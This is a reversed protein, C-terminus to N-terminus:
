CVLRSWPASRPSPATLTWRRRSATRHGCHRPTCVGRRVERSCTQQEDGATARGRRCLAVSANQRADGDVVRHQGLQGNTPPRPHQRRRRWGDGRARGAHKLAGGRPRARTTLGQPQTAHAAPAHHVLGEEFVEASTGEVVAVVPAAQEGRDTVPVPEVAGWLSAGAARDPRVPQLMARAVDGLDRVLPQGRPRHAQMPLRQGVRNRERRPWPGSRPNEGM